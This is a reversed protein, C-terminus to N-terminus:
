NKLAEFAGRSKRVRIPWVPPAACSAPSISAMAALGFHVTM